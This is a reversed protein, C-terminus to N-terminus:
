NEQDNWNDKFEKMDNSQGVVEKVMNKPVIDILTEDDNIKECVEIIGSELAHIVYKNNMDVESEGNKDVHIGTGSNWFDYPYTKSLKVYIKEM